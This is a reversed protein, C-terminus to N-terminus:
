TNFVEIFADASGSGWTTDENIVGVRAWGYNRMVEALGAGVWVQHCRSSMKIAHQHGRSSNNLSQNQSHSHSNHRAENTPMRAVNPYADDDGLVPATSLYSILVTNYAQIAFRLRRTIM